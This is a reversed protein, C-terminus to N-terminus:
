RKLAGIKMVLDEFEDRHVAAKNKVRTRYTYITNASYNLFSAIRASDTIGLRILAFIRLEVNLLENNKLVFRHEEKLLSNFDEVFNPYLHLFTSDFNKYLDKLENEIMDRSKLMKYLESLKKERAKMNLSNQFKSLKEIYTSCMYLFHGIYAEKVHNSESLSDNVDSLETNVDYLKDNAFQLEDNLKKLESNTASLEKKIAALRKVHRYISIVLVLLFFLLLSVLVLYLQLKQNQNDIREKYGSDIIPFILSVEYARVRANSFIADELSSQICRYANKVDDEEYLLAALSHMSANEKISNKIDNIASLAYYYKQLDVRGEKKYVNALAYAVVAKEHSESESEELLDELIRKSEELNDEDYLKDAFVIKYHNSETDLVNLLSDRYLHSMSIHYTSNPNNQSYNKYLQKYSDYYNVLLEYPLVPSSIPKLIDIAELYLGTLIYLSTLDLKAENFKYSDNNSEALTLNKKVYCIASDPIYTKYESYIRYNIDYEQSYDLNLVNLQEKLLLIRDEKIQTYEEKKDILEYLYTYTTDRHSNSFCDVGIFCILIILLLRNM